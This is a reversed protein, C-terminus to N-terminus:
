KRQSLLTSLTSSMRFKIIYISIIRICLSQYIPRLHGNSISSEQPVIGYRVAFQASWLLLVLTPLLLRRNVSQTLPYLLWWESTDRLINILRTLGSKLM